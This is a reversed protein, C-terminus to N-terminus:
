VINADPDNEPMWWYTIWEKLLDVIKRLSEMTCKNATRKM